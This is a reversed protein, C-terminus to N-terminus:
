VDQRTNFQRLCAKFSNDSTSNDCSWIKWVLLCTGIFVNFKGKKFDRQLFFFLNQVFHSKLDKYKGEM